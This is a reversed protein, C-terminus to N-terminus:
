EKQIMHTSFDNMGKIKAWDQDWCCHHDYNPIVVVKPKKKFGISYSNVVGGDIVKDQGGVFHVQPVNELAQYYDAPNLSGTLPSIHHAQTWYRHDLNGAVTILQDIDKRRAALLTAIAGGGSYGILVVRSAKFKEKLFDVARNESDVVALSFRQSTWYRADCQVSMTYQCPRAIYAAPGTDKLALKLALPDSPTPDKSAASSGVWALGDGEIYITLVTSSKIDDPVFIALDFGEDEYVEQHWGQQVALQNALRIRQNVTPVNSACASICALLIILFGNKM